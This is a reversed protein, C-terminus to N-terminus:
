GNRLRAKLLSGSRRIRFRWLSRCALTWGRIRQAGSELDLQSSSNREVREVKGIIRTTEVAADPENLADGQTQVSAKGVRIVRHIVLRDQQDKFLVIDGVRPRRNGVPEVILIEGGQLFPRMSRGTVQIRVSYGGALVNELLDSVGPRSFEVNDASARM